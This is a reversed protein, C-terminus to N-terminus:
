EDKFTRTRLWLGFGFQNGESCNDQSTISYTWPWSSHSSLRQDNAGEAVEAQLLLRECEQCMHEQGNYALSRPRFHSYVRKNSNMEMLLVDVVTKDLTSIFRIYFTNIKKKELVAIYNHWRLSPTECFNESPLYSFTCCEWTFHSFYAIIRLHQSGEPRNWPAEQPSPLPFESTGQNLKRGQAPPHPAPPCVFM